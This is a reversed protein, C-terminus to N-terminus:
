PGTRQRPGANGFFAHDERGLASSAPEDSHHEATIAGWDAGARLDGLLALLQLEMRRLLVTPPPLRLRRMLAFYPSRPPYGLELIRTVYDPEIRRFGPTLMWEGATAIFEHLADRDSAEPRELYGLDSLAALTRRPDGAALAQMVEREGQLSDPDLDRVLGFDLLCLRGDPCLICNDPHPDGAVIGDRRVLGFFFRFAIEGTRDREPDGLRRIEDAGLGEVYETVLV